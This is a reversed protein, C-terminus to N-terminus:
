LAERSLHQQSTVFENVLLSSLLLITMNRSSAAGLAPTILSTCCYFIAGINYGISISLLLYDKNTLNIREDPTPFLTEAARILNQSSYYMIGFGALVTVPQKTFHIFEVNIAPIVKEYLVVSGKTSVLEQSVEVVNFFAKSLYNSCEKIFNFCTAFLSSTSEILNIYISSDVISTHIFIITSRLANLINRAANLIIYGFLGNEISYKALFTPLIEFLFRDIINFIYM